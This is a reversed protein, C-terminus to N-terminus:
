SKTALMKGCPSLATSMLGDGKGALTKQKTIGTAPDWIQITCGFSASILLQGDPSFVISSTYNSHAVRGMEHGTHPDWVKVVGGAGTSALLKGDPSFAITRDHSSHPLTRLCFGTAPDWLRLMDKTSSALLKGDPSFAIFHTYNHSDMDHETQDMDHETQVEKGTAPDWLKITEWGYARAEDIVAGALLNGDPSFAVAVVMNNPELIRLTNRTALSWIRVTEDISAALLKGDPSFAIDWVIDFHGEIIAELTGCVEPCHPDSRVPITPIHIKKM